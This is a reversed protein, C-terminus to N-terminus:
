CATYGSLGTACTQINGLRAVSITILPSGQGYQTFTISGSNSAAGRNSDFYFSGGVLGTTSISQQGAASYSATGLDCNSPTTCDCAATTSIGYCWTDGTQFAVYVNAGRKLAESRAYQLYYYLKTGNASLRYNAIFTSLSPVSLTALIGVILLAILLEIWTVGKVKCRTM